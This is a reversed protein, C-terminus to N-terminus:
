KGNLEEEPLDEFFIGGAVVDLGKNFILIDYSVKKTYDGKHLVPNENKTLTYYREISRIVAVNYVMEPSLTASPFEFKDEFPHQNNTRIVNNVIIGPTIPNLTFVLDEQYIYETLKSLRIEKMLSFEAQYAEIDNLVSTHVTSNDNRTSITDLFSSLSQVEMDTLPLRYHSKIYEVLSHTSENMELNDGEERDNSFYM